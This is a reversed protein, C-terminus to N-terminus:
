SKITTRNEDARARLIARVLKEPLPKDPTFQITGKRLKFGKLEEAFENVTHGPFFSCHNKFAAMSAIFGNLKYTPVRYSIGESADPLEDKIIERLKALADRAADWPVRALYEDVSAPTDSNM